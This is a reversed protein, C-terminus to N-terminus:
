AEVSTSKSVNLAAVVRELRPVYDKRRCDTNTMIERLLDEERGSLKRFGDENVGNFSAHGELFAIEKEDSTDHVGYVIQLSKGPSAQTIGYVGQHDTAATIVLTRQRIPRKWVYVNSKKKQPQNQNQQQPKQNDNSM